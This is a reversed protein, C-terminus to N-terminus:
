YKFHFNKVPKNAIKSLRINEIPQSHWIATLSKIMQKSIFRTYMMNNLCVSTYSYPKLKPPLFLSYLAKNWPNRFNEQQSNLETQPINKHVGELIERSYSLM